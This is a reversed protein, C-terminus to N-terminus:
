RTRDDQIDWRNLVYALGRHHRTVIVLVLSVLVCIAVAGSAVPGQVISLLTYGGIGVAWRVLRGTSRTPQAPEIRVITEGITRGTALVWVLQVAAFILPGAALRLFTDAAPPIDARDSTVVVYVFVVAVAGLTVVLWDCLMGLLRRLVTVPRADGRNMAAQGPILRLIPALLTGLLAGTTNAILDDVDFLRYACPYLFWDGTLQTTEIALSVGLGVLAVVAIPRRSFHRVVMGLPVFLAVNFAVQLLAPNKLYSTVGGGRSASERAIDDVFRGPMLQPAAGHVTCFDAVRPPLPLLTYTILAVLYLLVIVDLLVIGVTLGGRRRYQIATFPVALVLALIAGFVVAAVAPFLTASM